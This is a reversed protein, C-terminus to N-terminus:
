FPIPPLLPRTRRCDIAFDLDSNENASALAAAMTEGLAERYRDHADVAEAVRRFDCFLVRRSTEVYTRGRLGLEQYSLAWEEHQELFRFTDAPYHDIIRALAQLGADTPRLLTLAELQELHNTHAVLGPLIELLACDVPAPATQGKRALEELSRCRPVTDEAIRNAIVVGQPGGQWAATAAVRLLRIRTAEDSEAEASERAREALELLELQVEQRCAAGRAGSPCNQKRVFLKEFRDQAGVHTIRSLTECSALAWALAALLGVAVIRM